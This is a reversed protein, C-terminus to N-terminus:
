FREFLEWSLSGLLRLLHVGRTDWTEQTVPFPVWTSSGLSASNLHNLESDSLGLCSSIVVSWLLSCWPSLLAQLDVSARSYKALCQIISTYSSVVPVLIFCRFLNSSIEGLTSVPGLLIDIRSLSAPCVCNLLHYICILFSNMMAFSFFYM